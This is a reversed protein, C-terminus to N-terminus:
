DSNVSEQSLCFETWETMLKTRKDLMDTRLYAAEVQDPNSHALAGEVVERPTNTKEAAWDRFSSRFGHVTIGVVKVRKLLSLMSNESMAKSDFPSFVFARNSACERVLSAAPDTLPVRHEKGAKMRDAPVTWVNAKLDFEDPTAFRM